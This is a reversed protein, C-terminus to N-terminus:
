FLERRWSPVRGIFSFRAKGAQHRRLTPYTMGFALGYWEEGVQRSEITKEAARPMRVGVIRPGRGISSLLVERVGDM